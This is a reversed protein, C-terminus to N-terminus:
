RSVRFHEYVIENTLKCITKQPIYDYTDCLNAVMGGGNWWEAAVKRTM